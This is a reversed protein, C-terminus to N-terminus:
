WTAVDIRVPDLDPVPFEYVGEGASWTVEAIGADVVIDLEGDGERRLDAAYTIAGDITVHLALAEFDLVLTWGREEEDVEIAVGGPADVAVTCRWAPDEVAIVPDLAPHQAVVLRDDVVHLVHVLSQAGNWDQGDDRPLGRLWSMACPRGEADRFTSTAYVMRGHGFRGWRRPSFVHGDYDGVAYLVEDVVEHALDMASVLLVWHGDVELLQPCEWVEGTPFDEDADWARSALVGDYTWTLGDDSVYQLAAGGVGVWGAGLTMHWGDDDRRVQPDRVDRFREDPPGPVVVGARTWHALAHDGLALVVAGRSWDGPTPRTYYLMPEAALVVSGSWCGVEGATPELADDLTTWHVLDESVAHGWRIDSRWELSDPVAQFHAHYRTGDFVIGHPDNMWGRGPTLHFQPRRM